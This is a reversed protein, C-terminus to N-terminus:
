SANHDEPDPGTPPASGMPRSGGQRPSEQGAERAKGAEWEAQARRERRDAEMINKMVIYFLVLIGITPLLAAAYPYVADWV